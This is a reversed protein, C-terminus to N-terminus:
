DQISHSTKLIPHNQILKLNGGGGECGRFPSLASAWYLGLPKYHDSGEAERKEGESLPDLGNHKPSRRERSM